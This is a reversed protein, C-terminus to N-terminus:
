EMDGNNKKDIFEYNYTIKFNTENESDNDEEEWTYEEKQLGQKKFIFALVLGAAFGWLHSEWSVEYKVPFIGWVMSGYEFVVLLSIILLAKNMRLIGSLLLFGFLGYLIGSAGIHFSSRAAVWTWVGQMLWIWFFTKWAIEKYFYFIAVGMILFPIANNILHSWNGHIFPSFIIGSLGSIQRPLIGWQTFSLNYTTEIIKVFFLPILLLLVPLVSSFIFKKFQKNNFDSSMFISQM